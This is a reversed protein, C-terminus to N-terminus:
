GEIRKLKEQIERLQSELDTDLNEDIDEARKKIEEAKAKKPLKVFPFVAQVMKIKSGLVKIANDIGSKLKSEEARLSNYRRMIKILSLLSIELSLINKKSEASESYSLRLYVPNQEEMM